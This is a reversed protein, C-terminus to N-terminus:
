EKKRDRMKEIVRQPEDIELGHMFGLAPTLDHRARDGPGGNEARGQHRVNEETEPLKCAAARQSLVRTRRLAGRSGRERRDAWRLCSIGRWHGKSWWNM